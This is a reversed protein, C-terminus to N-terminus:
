NHRNRRRYAKAAQLKKKRKGAAWRSLKGGSTKSIVVSNKGALAKKAAPQLEEPLPEFGPAADMGVPFNRVENTGPNM